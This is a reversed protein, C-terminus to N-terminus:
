SLSSTSIKKLLERSAAPPPSAIDASMSNTSGSSSASGSSGSSGPRARQERQEDNAYKTQLRTQHSRNRLANSATGGTSSVM